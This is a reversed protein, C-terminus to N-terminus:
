RFAGISISPLLEPYVKYLYARMSVPDPYLGAAYQLDIFRYLDTKLFDM